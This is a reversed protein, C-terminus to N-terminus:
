AAQGHVLQTTAVGQDGSRTPSQAVVDGPGQRRRAHVEREGVKRLRRNVPQRLLEARPADLRLVLRAVQGVALLAAPECGPRLFARSSPGLGTPVSGGSFTPSATTRAIRSFTASITRVLRGTLGSVKRWAIKGCVAVLSARVRRTSSNVSRKALARPRNYGGR